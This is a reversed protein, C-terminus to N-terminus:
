LVVGQVQGRGEFTVEDKLQDSATSPVDSKQSREEDEGKEVRHCRKKARTKLQTEM